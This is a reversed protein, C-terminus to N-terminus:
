APPTALAKHYVDATVIPGDYGPNIPPSIEKKAYEIIMSEINIGLERVKVPDGGQVLISIEPINNGPHAGVKNSVTWRIADYKAATLAESLLKKHEAETYTKEAKPKEQSM